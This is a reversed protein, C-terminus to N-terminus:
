AWIFGYLVSTLGLISLGFSIVFLALPNEGVLLYAVLSGLERVTTVLFIGLGLFLVARNSNRQYGRYAQYGVYVGLVLVAVTAAFTVYEIPDTIRRLVRTLTDIGERAYIHNNM